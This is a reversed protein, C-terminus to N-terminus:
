GRLLSNLHHNKSGQPNNSTNVKFCDPNFGLHSKTLQIANLKCRDM